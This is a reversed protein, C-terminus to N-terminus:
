ELKSNLVLARRRGNGARELSPRKERTFCRVAMSKLCIMRRTNSFFFLLGHRMKVGFVVKTVHELPDSQVYLSPTSLIASQVYEVTNFKYQIGLKIPWIELIM